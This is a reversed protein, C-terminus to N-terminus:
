SALNVTQNAGVWARRGMQLKSQNPTKVDRTGTAVGISSAM